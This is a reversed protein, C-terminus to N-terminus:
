APSPQPARSAQPTSPPSAQASFVRPLAFSPHCSWWLPVARIDAQLLLCFPDLCLVWLGSSRGGGLGQTESRASGRGPWGAEGGRIPRPSTFRPDRLSSPAAPVRLRARLGSLLWVCAKDQFRDCRKLVSSGRSGGCLLM